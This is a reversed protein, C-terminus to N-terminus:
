RFIDVQRTTPMQSYTMVFSRILDTEEHYDIEHEKDFEQWFVRLGAEVLKGAGTRSEGIPLADDRTGHTLLIPIKESEVTLRKKWNPFFYTYGSIGVVGALEHGGHLAFDTSILCGQSFGYFFIDKAAWGHARLEVMMNQLKKRAALIGPKQNPPFAYWTYGDLYERPANILLYNMFPLRLESPTSRFSRLSDGRGHLVIMLKQMSRPVRGSAPIWEHDFENTIIRRAM